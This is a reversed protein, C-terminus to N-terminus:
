TGTQDNKPSPKDTAGSERMSLPYLTKKISVVQEDIRQSLAALELMYYVTSSYATNMAHM